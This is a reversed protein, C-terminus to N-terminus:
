LCRRTFSAAGSSRQLTATSTLEKRTSADILQCSQVLRPWNPAGYSRAIAEQADALEVHQEDRLKEAELRLQELNPHVPLDRTPKM